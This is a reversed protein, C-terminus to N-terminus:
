SPNSNFSLLLSSPTISYISFTQLTVLQYTQYTIALSQHQNNSKIISLSHNDFTLYYM